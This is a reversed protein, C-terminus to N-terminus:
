TIRKSYEIPTIRQLMVKNSTIIQPKYAEKGELLIDYKDKTKIIESLPEDEQLLQRVSWRRRNNKKKRSDLIRPIDRHM